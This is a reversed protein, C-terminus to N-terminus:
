CIGIDLSDYITEWTAPGDSCIRMLLSICSTAWPDDSSQFTDSHARYVYIKVFMTHIIEKEKVIHLQLMSYFTVWLELTQPLSPYKGVTEKV